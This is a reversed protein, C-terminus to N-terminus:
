ERKVVVVSRILEAIVPRCLLLYTRTSPTLRAEIGSPMEKRAIAKASYVLTVSPCVSLCVVSHHCRDCIIRRRYCCCYPPFFNKHKRNGGM